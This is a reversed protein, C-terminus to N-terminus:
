WKMQVIPRGNTSFRQGNWAFCGRERKQLFDANSTWLLSKLIANANLRVASGDKIELRWCNARWVDFLNAFYQKQRENRSNFTDESKKMADYRGVPFLVFGFITGHYAAFLFMGAVNDADLIRRYDEFTRADEQAFNEGLLANDKRRWDVIESARDRAYEDDDESRLHRGEIRLLAAQERSEIEEQM